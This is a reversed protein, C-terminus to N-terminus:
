NFFVEDIFVWGKQGKGPHWSPLKTINKAIIKFCQASLSPFEIKIAENKVMNKEEKTLQTPFIKKLLKLKDKNEGGWIEIETPPMLYAQVRTAYSISINNITQPKEFYFLAEFPEERFGLWAPDSFNEVTGKKGDILTIGGEGKYKENPTTILEAKQPQIGKKYFNVEFVPSSYWGNKIALAKITTFGNIPFPEKYVPSSTSDPVTGDTTYRIMVGPIQHKLEVKENEGLVVTENKIAPSTLTLVEGKEPIYGTNFIIKKNNVKIALIDENVINTKWIFVEKLSELKLLEQIANKNIGTGALSLSQLSKLKVLEAVGKNTVSSNNLILKELNTFKSVTKMDADSAPMNALSLVVIQEKVKLLEELKKSNYKERVFFDVQLAPSNQSIPFVSCFPDNLKQITTSSVASFSYEKEKPEEKQPNFFKAAIIKVSDTESYERIQKKMDAGSQIWTYLFNIEEENLQPKGLPPMHKKDDEALNINHIIRSNSADGAKWIPGSKGGALLKEESTMVLKGKAKTENHCSFCKTKLIPKIAAAFMTSSDTIKEEETKEEGRFPQWVFGEGHSLNSGFHSAVVLLLTTTISAAGFIKKNEGTAKYILLMIYALLATIVGLLKHWYITTEDYGGEKSLFFGMLATLASTFVSVHLIPSFIKQFSNGEVNKRFIWLVLVLILLVIPVHLLFPHMRGIAQVTPPLSIKTQFLLLFLLMTVILLSLDSLIRQFIKM